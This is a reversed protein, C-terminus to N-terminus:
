SKGGTVALWIIVCVVVLILVVVAIWKYYAACMKHKVDVATKKFVSSKEKLKDSKDLADEIQEGRELVKEINKHAIATTEELAANVQDLKKKGSRDNGDDGKAGKKPKSAM